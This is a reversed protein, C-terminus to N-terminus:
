GLHFSSSKLKSSTFDYTLESEPYLSKSDDVWINYETWVEYFRTTLKGERATFNITCKKRSSEIESISKPSDDSDYVNELYDNYEDKLIKKIDKELKSKNIEKAKKISEEEIEKTINGDYACVKISYKGLKTEFYKVKTNKTSEYLVSFNELRQERLM